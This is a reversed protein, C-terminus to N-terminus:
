FAIILGVALSGQSFTDGYGYTYQCTGVCDRYEWELLVTNGEDTDSRMVRLEFLLGLTESLDIKVGAGLGLTLATEDPLPTVSTITSQGVGFVLYPRTHGTLIHWVLGLQWTAVDTDLPGMADEPMFGGPVEGFLGHNDKFETLQKSYMLELELSKSMLWGFRLGFEGNNALPVEYLGPLYTYYANEDLLLNGGWRLGVTPTLEWRHDQAFAVAPALMLVFLIVRRM